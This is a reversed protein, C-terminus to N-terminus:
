ITHTIYFIFEMDMATQPVSTSGGHIVPILASDLENMYRQPLFRGGCGAQYEVQTYFFLCVFCVCLFETVVSLEFSFFANEISHWLCSMKKKGYWGTYLYSSCCLQNWQLDSGRPSSDSRQLRGFCDGESLRQLIVAGVSPQLRSDQAPLVGPPVIACESSQWGARLSPTRSDSSPFVSKGWHM